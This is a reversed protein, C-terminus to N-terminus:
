EQYISLHTFLFSLMLIRPWKSKGELRAYEGTVKDDGEEVIKKIDSQDPQAAM